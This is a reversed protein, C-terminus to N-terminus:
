ALDNFFSLTGSPGVSSFHWSQPAGITIRVPRKPSNRAQVRYGSHLPRREIESPILHGLHRSPSSASRRVLRPLDNQPQMRYGSQSKEVQFRGTASSHGLHPHIPSSRFVLLASPSDFVQRLHPCRMTVTSGSSIASVHLRGDHAAPEGAAFCGPGQGLAAYIYSEAL